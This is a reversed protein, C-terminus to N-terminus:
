PDTRKLWRTRFQSRPAGSLRAVVGFFTFRRRRSKRAPTYMFVRSRSEAAPSM